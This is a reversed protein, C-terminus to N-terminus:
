YSDLEMCFWLLTRGLWHLSTNPACLVSPILHASGYERNIISKNAM